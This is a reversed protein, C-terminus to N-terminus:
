RLKPEADTTWVNVFDWNNPAVFAAAQSYISGEQGLYNGDTSVANNAGALKTLSSWGVYSTCTLSTSENRGVLAGELNINASKVTFSAYCKSVTITSGSVTHGLIGGCWRRTKYTDTGITGTYYCNEVNLTAASNTHAVIGGHNAMNNATLLIDVTSYCKKIQVNNNLHGVLGGAYHSGTNITGTAHCSELTHSNGDSPAYEGILGGAYYNSTTISATAYCNQVTGNTLIGILGGAKQQTTTISGSAYCNEVTGGTMDGILGGTEQGQSNITGTSYYCGNQVTGGDMTGILGGTHAHNSGGTQTINGSAHCNDVTGGKLQGVLGGLYYSSGTVAVSSSNGTLTGTKVYGVLGGITQVGSISGSVTNDTLTGADVRSIFTSTTARGTVVCSVINNNVTGGDLYGIFGSTYNHGSIVTNTVTCGTTYGIKADANHVYGFACGPYTYNGNPSTVMTNVVHCDDFTSATSVEGVLGGVYKREATAESTLTSHYVLPEGSPADGTVTVGSVTSAATNCTNALLGVTEDSSVVANYITLNQVTGNLDAFLSNSLKSIKKGNGNLNVAATGGANLPTWTFSTLDIDDVLKFYKTEGAVMLTNMAALQYKDAILYPHAASGDDDKGAYKDTNAGTLSILNLQGGALNLASSTLYYRTYVSHDDDTTGFKFLLGTGSPITVGTPPISAFVDLTNATGADGPTTIAITMTGTPGFINKDAVMTVNNVKAAVGDPLTVSLHLAGSQAITGGKSSAWASTFAIDEYTNVGTLAVTYGLHATSEDEAQTQVLVNAPWSKANVITIDYSTASVATGTFTGNQTGEGASLTFDQYNSANSHDAVRIKDGTAWTPQLASGTYALDVKSLEAPISATITIQEGAVIQQPEDPTNQEKNCSVALLAAAIAAM